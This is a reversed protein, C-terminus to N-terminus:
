RDGAGTLMRAEVRGDEAWRATRVAAVTGLLESATLALKGSEGTSYLVLRGPRDSIRALRQWALVRGVQRAVAPAPDIVAVEPGALRQILPQVFPYHTCALVLTDVGAELMPALAAKIIAETEMDALRGAEIAEVLGPCPDEYVTISQAHRALLGAYRSSGFTGPTALVGIRGNTTQQAAPKVAPEMGVFPIDPLRERLYSLAAASATNCAVVVVKAGQAMLFRSIGESLRQIEAMSRRGYPVHAQDAFYILNEQPMQVRVQHLVSLGGLGSDFVGIAREQDLSFDDMHGDM